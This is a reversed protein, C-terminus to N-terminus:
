VELKKIRNIIFTEKFYRYLKNIHISMLVYKQSLAKFEVIAIAKSTKQMMDRLYSM